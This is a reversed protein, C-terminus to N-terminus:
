PTASRRCRGHSGPRIWPLLSPVLGVPVQPVVSVVSVQPVQPAV